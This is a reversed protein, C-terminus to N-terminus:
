AGERPVSAVDDHSRSDLVYTLQKLPIDKLQVFRKATQQLLGLDECLRM